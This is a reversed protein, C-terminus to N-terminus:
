THLLSELKSLQSITLNASLSFRLRETGPPVTPTRIPLVKYGGEALKRSLSLASESSGTVLPQIHGPLPRKLIRALEKGLAKLQERKDDMQPIREIIFRSWACNVPPIATSFILSRATNVLYDRLTNTRLAAFAGVSGAAKGLTGIIIDVEPIDAALGLGAKGCVGFAHAEDVYLLSNPTKSAAIEMLPASDGDMSYISECVIIVREYDNARKALIHRLHDVDNHRFREFAAKSLIMGDIISAHVLKDAVILTRGKALAAIAGSNAHYGSNFLLVPRQYMDALLKELKQFESQDAALLRSASASLAPIDDGLLNFFESKLTADVAIGLYDNSSLDILSSNRTDDPITRFNQTARLADLQRLYTNM